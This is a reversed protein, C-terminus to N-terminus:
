VFHPLRRRLRNWLNRSALRDVWLFLVLGLVGFVLNPIWPALAPNMAGRQGFTQTLFLLGQFVGVLGLSIVIGIARSRTGFILSFAGGLLVFVVTTLPLSLKLHLEVVYENTRQANSRAARIRGLLEGIGMESPTKSRAFVQEISQEMPIALNEFEGSYVIEGDLNFGYIRGGSLELTPDIWQGEQATLITVHTDAQPFIRGTIDYIFVDQMSGNDTDYRRVYFFQDEPGKFFENATIRPAAQSFIIGRFTSQFSAEAAPVGWNYLVFDLGAVLSAALLLPLLIRRLSIGISEFAMIERDHGLRGLGLFTAFLAAMPVALVLVAPVRYLILRLFTMVGIGRDVMLYSLSLIVNLLIFLVLGALALVFPGVMERVLYRDFRRPVM